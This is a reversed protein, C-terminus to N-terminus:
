LLFEKGTLLRYAEVYKALTNRVVEDPLTPGPPTKDWKGEDVLEQLYNRVYQKDFSAQDRGAEYDDMPWFRSSDMTLVEDILIPTTSDGEVPLGFEFKTDAIIIGREAAYDRAMTYISLSLDRLKEGMEQGVIDCSQEFSINEDHGVDEKTSPTYLPKPLKDCQKLGAPLELGCVTQSKQYEKWGSGALYGRVICEVRLVKAKRGIMIRGKLSERQEDTIGAIDAPDTSLLHHDMQAGLKDAVMDFWFKSVQTLVSGKQPVPNSMVVDFASIRDTAIILLADEGSTTKMDYIDRVKGQRRGPLPLDSQMLGETVTLETM